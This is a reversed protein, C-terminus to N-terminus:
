ECPWRHPEIELIDDGDFHTAEDEDGPARSLSAAGQGPRLRGRPGIV